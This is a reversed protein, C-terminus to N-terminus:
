AAHSVASDLPLATSGPGQPVRPEPDVSCILSHLGGATGAASVPEMGQLAAQCMQTHLHRVHGSVTCNKFMFTM